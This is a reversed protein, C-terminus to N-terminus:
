PKEKGDLPLERQKPNNAEDLSRDRMLNYMAVNGKSHCLVMFNFDDHRRRELDRQEEATM